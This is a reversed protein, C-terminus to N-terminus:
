TSRMRLLSFGASASSNISYSYRLALFSSRRRRCDFGSKRRPPRADAEASHLCQDPLAIRQDLQAIKSLVSGARPRVNSAGAEEGQDLSRLPRRPYTSERRKSVLGELGMLCAHRFLDPGIEGQEFDSLFVEDVRRAL